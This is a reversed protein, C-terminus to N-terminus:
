WHIINSINGPLVAAPALAFLYLHRLRRPIVITCWIFTLHSPCTEVYRSPTWLATADAPEKLIKNRFTDAVCQFLNKVLSLMSSLIITSWLHKDLKLLM